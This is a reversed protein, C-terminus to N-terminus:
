RLEEVRSWRTQAQEPTMLQVEELIIEKGESNIGKKSMNIAKDIVELTAIDTQALTMATTASLERFQFRVKDQIGQYRLALSFSKNLSTALTQQCSRITAMYNEWQRNAHTESTSNNIGMLIPISKCALTLDNRLLDIVSSLAGLGQANM